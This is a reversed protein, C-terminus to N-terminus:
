AAREQAGLRALAARLAAGEEDALAAGALSRITEAPNSGLKVTDLCGAIAAFSALGRAHTDGYGKILRQLAALEVALEVDDAAADRVLGLWHEIRATEQRYRYSSRRMFKLSALLYLPLFGRLKTTPLRRGKGFFVSLLKRATASGLIRTALAPPLMDCFEEIRPHMYESVHVIQGPEAVVDRRFRSFRSARTKLDAVRVVDDYAMWLALHKAVANTLPYDDGPTDLALVTHLRDLYLSGYGPDQHDVVKKLGQRIMGRAAAPFENKLRALLPQVAPAAAADAPRAAGTPAPDAGAESRVADFGAAFGALNTEVARNLDRIVAEFEARAIPLAESGALAGFLVSSIISGTSQACAEMDAALFRGAAKEALTHISEPSVRADGMGIKEGIAYVRHSSAILTTQDTVFGRDIARGAEMIESALVIDVDGPVPMLALVPQQGQHEAVRQPFLEIYYITAGTRQAVGPVSTSQAICGAREGLKVVWGALVG